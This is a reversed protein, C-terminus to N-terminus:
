KLNETEDLTYGDEEDKLEDPHVSDIKQNAGAISKHMKARDRADSEENSDTPHSGRDNMEDWYVKSPNGKQQNIDKLRDKM